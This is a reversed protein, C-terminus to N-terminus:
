SQRRMPLVNRDEIPRSMAELAAMTETHDDDFLHTYISLTTTVKAHGMFRSLQLPPIGAAVCLSAYTHRLARFKLAPPLVPIQGGLRNARAVAPRFVAEWASYGPEIGTM